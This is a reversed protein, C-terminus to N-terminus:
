KQLSPQKKPNKHETIISEILEYLIRCLNECEEYVYYSSETLQVINDGHLNGKRVTFYDIIPVLHPSTKQVLQQLGDIEDIKKSFDKISSISPTSSSIEELIYRSYKKGFGALEFLHQLGTMSSLLDSHTQSNLKPFPLNEETDSLMFPWTIRYLSRFIEISDQYSDILNKLQMHGNILSSKFLHISSTHFNSLSDKCWKETLENKLILEQIAASVVQYPIDHHCQYYACQDTPFCPFCKTKPSINYAKNHYPTTEYPRVNGLSITLTTIDTLSAMHGVMSDHGVFLSSTKLKEFLEELNTKGTFNIIRNSYNKLLPNETIMQSKLVENKAGVLHVSHDPNDKLVKYIIEVWKEARWSKRENSAFPHIIIEKKTKLNRVNSLKKDESEKIGIINKFLDVLSFPNYQGRMVTSYLVQSWKDTIFVKNNLDYSPGIKFDAAILSSLYNSSKSFSLNILANINKNKLSNLIENLKTLSPKLGEIVSNNFLDKTDIYITEDVYQDILFKLPKAFQERAILISKYNPYLEKLNNIAQLTQIIDGFRTLQVIAITKQNSENKIFNANKANM